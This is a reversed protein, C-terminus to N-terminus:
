DPRTNLWSSSQHDDVDALWDPRSIEIKLHDHRRAAGVPASREARDRAERRDVTSV